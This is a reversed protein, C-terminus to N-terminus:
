FWVTFLRDLTTSSAIFQELYEAASDTFTCAGGLGLGKLPLSLNRSLAATIAELGKIDVNLSEFVMKFDFYELCTASSIYAGIAVCDELVISAGDTHPSITLSELSLRPLLTDLRWNNNGDIELDVRQLQSLDPWLIRNCQVPLQLFLEQLKFVSKCESFIMNLAEASVSLCCTGYHDAVGGNLGVVSGGMMQGTNVGAMFMKADEKSISKTLSLAWQCQSHAVCYGLSCYDVTYDYFEVTTTDDFVTSMLDERQADYVWSVQYSIGLDLHTRAYDIPKDLLSKFDSPNLHALKTIGALFRLVVRLKGENCRRFHTLQKAPSLNSIHLAALFEQFTLHLFNHSTATGQTVYLETVSDMFGLNDFESPLGTFILQIHDSTGALGSYALKCLESFQSYVTPPLDNFSLLLKTAAKYDPHGRLYRLLLTRVLVTYLETLTTPLTVESDRSEQYVTVVIACNLPIYMCMRIQPHKEIYGELSVAESESLVSRIYSTIQQSSFVLIEIHQFIRHSCNAHLTSTAWPRSTVMVTALPLLHGYIIDFFLSAACRYSDPLEDFGELIILTKAGHTSELEAKVARCVSPSSHYILDQLGKAKSIREDRLRLLLVLQYQQAIEGRVWKRCFEWACTSKGVGPAGEVLIVRELTSALLGQAIQNFNIHWKKERIVDVNGDRIM